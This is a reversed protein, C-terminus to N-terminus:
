WEWIYGLAFIYLIGAIVWAIVDSTKEDESIIEALESIFKQILYAVGAAIITLMIERM